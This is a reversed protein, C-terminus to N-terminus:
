ESSKKSKEQLLNAYKVFRYNDGIEQFYAILWSLLDPDNNTAELGKKFFEEIQAPTKNLRYRYLYGLNRYPMTKDPYYSILRLFYEEAKQYDGLDSYINAVNNLALFNKPDQKLAKEYYKLALKKDGLLNLNVGIRLLASFDNEKKSDKLEAKAKLLEEVFKEGEPHNKALSKFYETEKKDQYFLFGVTFVAGLILLVLVLIITKLTIKIMKVLKLATDLFYFFNSMLNIRLKLLSFSFSCHFKEFRFLGPFGPKKADEAQWFKKAFRV